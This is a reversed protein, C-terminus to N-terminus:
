FLSSEFFTDLARPKSTGVALRRLTNDSASGFRPASLLCFLCCFNLVALLLLHIILHSAIPDKSLYFYFFTPPVSSQPLLLPCQLPPLLPPVFYTVIGKKYHYHSLQRASLKVLTRGPHSPSLPIRFSSPLPLDSPPPLSPTFAYIFTIHNSARHTACHLVKRLPYETS